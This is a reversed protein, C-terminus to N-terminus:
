LQQDTSHGSGTSSGERAEVESEFLGTPLEKRIWELTREIDERVPTVVQEPAYEVYERARGLWPEHLGNLYAVVLRELEDTPFTPELGTWIVGTVEPHTEAWEAIRGDVDRGPFRHIWKSATGERSRLNEAAKEVTNFSSEAWYTRVLQRGPTVVLTVRGDASKRAFEIPLLPGDARWQTDVELERPCWILSGWGIVAISM